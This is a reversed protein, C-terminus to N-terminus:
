TYECELHIIPQGDQFKLKYTIHKEKLWNAVSSGAPLIGEANAEQLPVELPLELKDFAAEMDLQSSTIVADVHSQCLVVWKITPSETLSLSRWITPIVVPKLVEKIGHPVQM